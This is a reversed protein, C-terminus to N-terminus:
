TFNQRINQQIWTFKPPTRLAVMHFHNLWQKGMNM